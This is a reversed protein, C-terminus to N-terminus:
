FMNFSTCVVPIVIDNNCLLLIRLNLLIILIINHYNIRILIIRLLKDYDYSSLTGFALFPDSVQEHGFCSRTAYDYGILTMRPWVDTWWPWVSSALDRGFKQITYFSLTLVIAVKYLPLVFKKPPSCWITKELAM